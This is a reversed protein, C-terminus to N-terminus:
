KWKHGCEVCRNRKIFFFLPLSFLLTIAAFKGTTNQTINETSGCHPCTAESPLENDLGETSACEFRCLIEHARVADCEPVKLKIRDLATSFLWNIGVMYQDALYCEIGQAKLNSQALGAQSLDRYEAIVVLKQSM